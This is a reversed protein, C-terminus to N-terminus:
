LLLTDEIVEWYAAAHHEASNKMLNEFSPLHNKQTQHNEEMWKLKKAMDDPDEANMWKMGIACQEEIERMPPYDSALSPVGVSAAEVVSYTGNDIRAPHWLFSAGSLENEYDDEPLEGMWKINKSARQSGNIMSNINKLHDLTSCIIKQSDVGIIHCELKGKLIDYYKLLAAIANKHNKHPASNTIWLFYPTSEMTKIIDRSLNKKISMLNPLLVIKEKPVGAYQIADRETFKTTVMVRKARNVMGIFIDDWHLPVNNEYRQIYDYVICYYNRLPLIVGPVRDSIFIWADCDTLNCIGDDIVFHPMDIISAEDRGSYTMARKSAKSDLMKWRFSRLKIESPLDAFDASSYLDDHDLHAFVVEINQRANRSGQFIATAALKAARLTGGRYGHPLIVAVRHIKKRIIQPREPIKESLSEIVMEISKRWADACREHDIANLIKPQSEKIAEILRWDDNLVKTIKQRADKPTECRGPLIEGAMDDLVGGGMYVLPMGAQIAEVPHYHLHRPETSHYYMVRMERMNREHQERSVFGLVNADMPPMMPQIGGIKYPLNRFTTKFDEYTKKYYENLQIDPCVFFITKDSGRWKGEEIQKFTGLPLFLRRNKIYWPEVEALNQFVQGFWFRNGMSKILKESDGDTVHSMVNHYTNDRDLGYARLIIAGKFYRALMTTMAPTAIFFAMQFYKNALEIAEPTIGEYWDFENLKKLDEEPISLNKDESYDVSASRYMFSSPVIKPLFIEDIGAQKLMPIEFKRASTHNLLWMARLRKNSM